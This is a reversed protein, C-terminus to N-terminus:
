IEEMKITENPFTISNGPVLTAIELGYTIGRYNDKKIWEKAKSVDEFEKSYIQLRPTDPYITLRIM